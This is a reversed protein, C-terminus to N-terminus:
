LAHHGGTEPMTNLAAKINHNMRNFFDQFISLEKQTFGEVPITLCQKQCNSLEELRPKKDEELILRHIKRNEPSIVTSIYGKEKLIEVAKSVNSKAFGRMASIDRATNYKPNNYLFLLIDIELQSLHYQESLAQFMQRYLKRFHNVYTIINEQM